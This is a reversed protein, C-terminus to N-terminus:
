RRFCNHAAYGAVDNSPIIFLFCVGEPNWAMTRCRLKRNSDSFSLVARKAKLDWVQTTGNHSVSGLIYFTLSFSIPLHIFPYTNSKRIGLLALLQTTKLKSSLRQELITHLQNTLTRQLTGFIFRDIILYMQVFLYALNCVLHYVHFDFAFNNM